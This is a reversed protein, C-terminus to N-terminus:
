RKNPKFTRICYELDSKPYYCYPHHRIKEMSEKETNGTAYNWCIECRSKWDNPNGVTRVDTPMSKARRMTYLKSHTKEKREMQMLENISQVLDKVEKIKSAYLKTTKFLMQSDKQIQIFSAYIM